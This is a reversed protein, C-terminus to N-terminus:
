SMMRRLVKTSVLAASSASSARKLHAGAIRAVVVDDESRHDGFLRRHRGLVVLDHELHARLAVLGCILSATSFSNSTLTLFTLVSIRSPLSLTNLFLARAATRRSARSRSGRLPDGSRRSWPITLPAISPAQFSCDSWARGAGAPRDDVTRREILALRDLRQGFTLIRGAAAVVVAADRRAKAAAAVLLGIALDIELAGLEVHRRRDLPMSYSGLRVPKM